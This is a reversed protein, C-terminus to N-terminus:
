GNSPEEVPTVLVDQTTVVGDADQWTEARWLNGKDDVWNVEGTKVSKVTKLKTAM